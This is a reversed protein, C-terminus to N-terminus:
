RQEESCRASHRYVHVIRAAHERERRLMRLGFTSRGLCVLAAHCFTKRIPHRRLECFEDGFLIGGKECGCRGVASGIDLVPTTWLSKDFDDVVPRQTEGIISAVALVDREGIEGLVVPGEQEQEIRAATLAYFKPTARAHDFVIGGQDFAQEVVAVLSPRLSGNKECNLGPVHVAGRMNDRTKGFSFDLLRKATTCALIAWSSASFARRRAAM